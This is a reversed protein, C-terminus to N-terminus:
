IKRTKKDMKRRHEEEQRMQGEIEGYEKLNNVVHTICNEEFWQVEYPLPGEKKM